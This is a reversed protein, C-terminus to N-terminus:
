ECNAKISSGGEHVGHGPKVTAICCCYFFRLCRCGAATAADSELLLVALVTSNKQLIWAVRSERKRYGIGFSRLFSDHFGETLFCGAYFRPGSQISLPMGVM